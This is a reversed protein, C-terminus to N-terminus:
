KARAGSPSWLLLDPSRSIEALPKMQLYRKTGWRISAMHTLRATALMLTSNGDPFAGVVRTGRRIERM